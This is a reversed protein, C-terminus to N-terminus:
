WINKRSRKKKRKERQFSLLDFFSERSKDEVGASEAARGSTKGAGNKEEAERKSFFALLSVKVIKEEM